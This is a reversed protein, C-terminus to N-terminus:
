ANKTKNRGHVEDIFKDLDARTPFNMQGPIVFPAETLRKATALDGKFFWADMLRRATEKALAAPNAAELDVDAKALDIKAENDKWWAKWADACKEREAKKEGLSAAPARDGAARGLLDEASRAVDLPAGTLLDVLVPVAGKERGALLGQAARLRVVPEADALLK